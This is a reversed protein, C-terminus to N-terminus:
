LKVLINLMELVKDNEIEEENLLDVMNKAKEKRECIKKCFDKDIPLIFDSDSKLFEKIEEDSAQLIMREFREANIAVKENFAMALKEILRDIKKLVAKEEKRQIVFNEILKNKM